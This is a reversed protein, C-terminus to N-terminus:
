GILETSGGRIVDPLHPLQDAGAQLAPITAADGRSTPRALWAGHQDEAILRFSCSVAGSARGAHADVARRRARQRRAGRGVRSRRVRDVFPVKELEAERIRKGLTEDREDVEARFGETTLRDRLGRGQERHTEGVPVVRAQVPALWFPFDGAYHEVLIGIFRELSGLLARHIVVPSHERNDPGMYTLGFRVPMQYDLQITGMQWSRGLVDTM